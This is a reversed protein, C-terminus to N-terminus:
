EENKPNDSLDVSKRKFIKKMSFKFKKGLVGKIYEEVKEIQEDTRKLKLHRFVLRKYLLHFNHKIFIRWNTLM